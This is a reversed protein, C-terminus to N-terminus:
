KKGGIKSFLNSLLVEAGARIGAKLGSAQIVTSSTVDAILDSVGRINIGVDRVSGSLTKIDTTVENIDDSVNRLSKLTQQLEDLTPKLSEETTKLLLDVSRLTKRLDIILLVVFGATVIVAIGILPLWIQNNM